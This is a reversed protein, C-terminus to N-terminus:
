INALFDVRSLVVLKVLKALSLVSRGGKFFAFKFLKM